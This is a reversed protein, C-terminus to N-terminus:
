IFLTTSSRRAEQVYTGVACYEDILDRRLHDARIGMVEMTMDCALVRGGLERFDNLMRELSAVKAKKMRRRVMWKGIGLLHMRSLRGKELGGIRLRELGWFTFFITADMGMALAGNGIILASYLKDMEGSHLIITMRESRGSMTDDKGARKARQRRRSRGKTCSTLCAACCQRLGSL